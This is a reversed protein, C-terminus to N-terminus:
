KRHHTTDEVAGGRRVRVVRALSGPLNAGCEVVVADVGGARRIAARHSALEDEAREGKMALLVGGPRLLPLAWRVLRDLPAVARATAFEANGAAQRVDPDEARGSLVRVQGALQLRATVETLFQVRRRMSEILDVSLDPRRCALAVGPLGAGSGIDTVRAGHPILDAVVACNVLHRDWLRPVEAPGLLGREIGWTALLEAYREALPLRDGFLERAADSPPPVGDAMVALL